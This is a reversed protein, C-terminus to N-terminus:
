KSYKSVHKKMIFGIPHSILIRYRGPLTARSNNV